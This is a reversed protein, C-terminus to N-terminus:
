KKPDILFNGAKLVGTGILIKYKLSKRSILNFRAKVKKGAILVYDQIVPRTHRGLASKYSRIGVIPGLSLKAALSLDISSRTAGTDIKAKIKQGKIEVEEVLGITSRMM